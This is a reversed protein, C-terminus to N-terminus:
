ATAEDAVEITVSGMFDCGKTLHRLREILVATVTEGRDAIKIASNTIIDQGLVMGPRIRDVDMEITYSVQDPDIVNALATLVEPDYRGEREQLAEIARMPAFRNAILINYDLVAHLIRSGLPIDEGRVDDEPLGGGSWQKGQYAVM